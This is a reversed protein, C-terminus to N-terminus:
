VALGEKPLPLSSRRRGPVRSAGGDRLTEPERSMGGSSESVPGGRSAGGRGRHPRSRPLGGDALSRIWPVVPSVHSTLRTQETLADVVQRCLVVSERAQEMLIGATERRRACEIGPHGSELTDAPEVWEACMAGHKLHAFGASRGTSSGVFNSSAISRLVARAIPRCIGCLTASRTSRTMSHDKRPAACASVHM